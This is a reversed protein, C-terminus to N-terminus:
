GFLSISNSIFEYLPKVLWSSASFGFILIAEVLDLHLDYKLYFNVILRALGEFLKINSICYKHKITTAKSSSAVEMNMEIILVDREEIGIRSGLFPDNDDSSSIKM